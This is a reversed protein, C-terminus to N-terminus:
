TFEPIGRAVTVLAGHVCHRLQLMKRSLRASWPPCWDDCRYEPRIRKTAGRWDSNIPKRDWACKRLYRKTELLERNYRVYWSPRVHKNRQVRGRSEDVVLTASVAMIYRSKSWRALSDKNMGTTCLGVSNAVRWRQTGTIYSVHMCILLFM